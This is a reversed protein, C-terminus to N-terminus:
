KCCTSSSDESGAHHFLLLIVIHLLLLFFCYDILFHFHKYSHHINSVKELANGLGPKPSLHKPECAFSPSSAGPPLFRPKKVANGLLQSPAASRRM